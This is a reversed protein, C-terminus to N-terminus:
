SYSSTIGYYEEITLKSNAIEAAKQAGLYRIHWPEYKYGTVSEKGKPYRIIFGYKVCNNALWIAEPTGDFYDSTTNVDIALGSQHESHGPRASCRDAQEVGRDYVFSNYTYSQTQYSRFGSIIYLYIGDAAADSAMRNFAEYVEPDLGDGFDSPLSYTKNAILIGDIYTVGDVVYISKLWGSCTSSWDSSIKQGSEAKKFACVHYYYKSNTKLDKLTVKTDTTEVTLCKKPNLKKSTSYQIIYGDAGEVAEWSIDIQDVRSRSSKIKPTDPESTDKQRVPESKEESYSSEQISSEAKSKEQVSSNANPSEPVSSESLSSEQKKETNKNEQSLQESHTSESETINLPEPVTAEQVSSESVSVKPIATDKKTSDTLSPEHLSSEKQLTRSTDREQVPKSSSLSTDSYDDESGTNNEEVLMDSVPEAEIEYSANRVAPTCSSASLVIISSLIVATKNKM